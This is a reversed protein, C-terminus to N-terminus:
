FKKVIPAASPAPDDWRYKLSFSVIDISGKSRGNFQVVTNFAPNGAPNYASGAGVIDVKGSKLFIHSYSFDMDLKESFKYGAGVSLWIRDSDLVRVGRNENDIPSKEYALGARFKWSPSYKYEAGAAFFWEDKYRFSLGSIPLGTSRNVVPATTIRSWNTWQATGTLTWVANLDHKIGLTAIEPLNVNASILRSARTPDLTALPATVDAEGEVKHRIHSRYGLSVETGQMPKLTVGATWGFGFADGKLRSLSGLNAGAAGLAPAAYRPDGGNLTINLQQATVGLGVAIWDNIKYGMTPTIAIARVITSTGYVAGSFGPDVKTRSGFPTGTQLGLWIRDNVQYSNYSATTLTGQNINGSGIQPFTPFVPAPPAFFNTIGGLPGAGALRDSTVSTNPLVMTFNWESRRGEFNTINAPNWFMSGIGFASTGAGAYSFGQGTVSQQRSSFGGAMASSATLAIVAASSGGLLAKTLLSRSM